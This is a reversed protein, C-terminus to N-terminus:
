GPVHLQHAFVEWTRVGGSGDPQVSFGEESSEPVGSVTKNHFHLYFCVQHPLKSFGVYDTPKLKTTHTIKQRLKVLSPPVARRSSELRLPKPPPPPPPLARREEQPKPLGRSPSEDFSTSLPPPPIYREDPQGWEIQGQEEELATGISTKRQTFPVTDPTTSLSSKRPPIPISGPVTGVSSKRIPVPEAELAEGTSSKRPQTPTAPPSMSYAASM